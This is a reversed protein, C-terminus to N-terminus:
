TKKFKLIQTELMLKRIRALSSFSLVAASQKKKRSVPVSTLLTSQVSVTLTTLLRFKPCLM